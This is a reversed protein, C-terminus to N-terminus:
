YFHATEDAKKMGHTGEGELEGGLFIKQARPLLQWSFKPDAKRKHFLTSRYHANHVPESQMSDRLM